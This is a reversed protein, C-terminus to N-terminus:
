PGKFNETMAAKLTTHTVTGLREGRDELMASVPCSGRM